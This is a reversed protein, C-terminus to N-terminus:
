WQRDKFMYKLYKYNKKTMKTGVLIQQVRSEKEHSVGRNGIVVFKLSIFYVLNMIWKNSNNQFSKVENRESRIVRREKM